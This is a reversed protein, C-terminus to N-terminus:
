KTADELKKGAAGSMVDAAQQTSKSAGATVSGAAGGKQIAGLTAKGIGSVVNDKSAAAKEASGIAKTALTTGGGAGLAAGLASAAVETPSTPQGTIGAEVNKGVAATLGATAASVKVAEGATIASKTAASAAFGSVGGTLAGVGTAVGVATWNTVTGGSAIMQSGTEIVFGVAAGWVFNAIRGDPDNYKYPNNLAYVYRNFQDGLGSDITVPDVSLFRGALPDYYRQQMYVLGSDADNAHGTFGIGSPVTGAAVNGYPEFRTRSQLQGGAATRAVPSGLADTHVFSRGSLTNTEAILRDGLYVHSTSGLASDVTFLLKGAQGYVQQRTRGNAYAIWTRRGHGDYAYSALGVASQLRNGIDFAFSQSGRRQLNGSAGYVYDVAVGNLVVNSLRNAADVGAVMSRGGVSSTRLNDLPDYGYAGAGWMGSAGTLRDLGDYALSRHTVGEQQDAIATVNANADYSYLDQVVGADRWLLPLGRLNQSTSHVM